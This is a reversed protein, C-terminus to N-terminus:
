APFLQRSLISGDIENRCRQRLIEVKRFTVPHIWEPIIQYLPEIVFPRESIHPHPLTLRPSRLIRRKYDLLDIDLTRPGWAPTLGRRGAQHELMKFLSLLSEPSKHSVIQAVCNAYPAQRGPGVPATIFIDSVRVVEVREHSLRAIAYTLSQVPTGWPGTLNSGLAVIIVPRQGPKPSHIDAIPGIKGM